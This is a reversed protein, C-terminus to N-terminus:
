VVFIHIDIIVEHLCLIKGVKGLIYQLPFCKSQFKETTYISVTIYALHGM